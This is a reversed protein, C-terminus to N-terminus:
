RPAVILWASPPMTSIPRPSMKGRRSMRSRPILGNTAPRASIGVVTGMTNNEVVTPRQYSREPPRGGRTIPKLTRASDPRARSDPYVQELRCCGIVEEQKGAEQQEARAEGEDEGGAVRHAQVRDVLVQGALDGPDRCCCLLTAPSDANGPEVGNEVLDVDPTEFVECVTPRGM